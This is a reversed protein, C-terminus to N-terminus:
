YPAIIIGQIDEAVQKWNIGHDVWGDGWPREAGYRQTFEDLGEATDIILINASEALKVHHTLNGISFSESRCWSQWDDDGQVSVWLGRPKNFKGIDSSQVKSFLEETKLPVRSHHLLNM